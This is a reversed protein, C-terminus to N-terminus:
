ESKGETKKVANEDPFALPTPSTRSAPTPTQMLMPKRVSPTATVPETRANKSGPTPLTRMTKEPSNYMAYVDEFAAKTNLTMTPENKMSPQRFTNGHRLPKVDNLEVTKEVSPHPREYKLGLLGMQKARAEAVCYETGDKTFLLSLDFKLFENRKGPVPEPAHIYQYRDHGYRAILTAHDSIGADRHQPNVPASHTPPQNAPQQLQPLIHDQFEKYLQNM